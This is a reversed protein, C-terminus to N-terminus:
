SPLTLAEPKVRALFTYAFGTIIGEVVMIPLHALVLMRAAGVFAEGSLALAGATLVASLLVAVFGCMFASIFRSGIGRALLPRFLYLCFVAPAAMTVCNVGLVTVGGFQFLVAQLALAVLISPFAAWGLIVGLLGNLVLHVNAPGIPVHILSAVFFAASLMAVSMIRDYDIKKLGIATGVVALGAGM